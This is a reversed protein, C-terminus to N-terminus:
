TRHMHTMCPAGKTLLRGGCRSAYMVPPVHRPLHALACQVSARPGLAADHKSPRQSSTRLKIHLICEQQDYDVNCLTSRDPLSPNCSAKQVYRPLPLQAAIGKSLHRSMTLEAQSLCSADTCTYVPMPAQLHLRLFTHWCSHYICSRGFLQAQVAYAPGLCGSCLGSCPLCLCRLFRAEITIYQAGRKSTTTTLTLTINVKKHYDPDCECVCTAAVPPRFSGRAALDASYTMLVREGRATPAVVQCNGNADVAGPAPTRIRQLLRMCCSAALWCEAAMIAGCCSTHWAEISSDHMPRM